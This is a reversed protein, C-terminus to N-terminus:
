GGQVVGKGPLGKAASLRAQSAAHRGAQHASGSAGRVGGSYGGYSGRAQSTEAHFRAVEQEKERLVLAGASTGSPSPAMAPSSAVAQARAQALREDIRAIFAQYFAARATQATHPRVTRRRKAIKVYTETRWEGRSLYRQSSEVMHVALPGFMTEVVDLHSPMGYGIVYTSNYAIDVKCDNSHAIAVYLAILHPNARKGKEGITTTRALPEQRSQRQETRARALALDISALTALHQAKMLYAEAEAENDTREAKALLAAIRDITM